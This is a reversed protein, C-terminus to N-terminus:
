LIYIGLRIALIALVTPILIATHRVKSVSFRYLKVKIIKGSWYFSVGILALSAYFIYQEYPPLGKPQFFVHSMGMALLLGLVGVLLLSIRRETKKRVLESSFMMHLFAPTYLYSTYVLAVSGLGLCVAQGIAASSLMWAFFYYLGSQTVAGALMGGIVRFVSCFCLWFFFSKMLGGKRGVVAYRVMPQHLAMGVLGTVLPPFGYISIVTDRNWEFTSAAPWQLSNVDLSTIIGQYHSVKLMIYKEMLFFLVYFLLIFASQYGVFLVLEVDERSWWRM